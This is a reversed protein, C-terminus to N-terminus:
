KELKFPVVKKIESLYGSGMLISDKKNTATNNGNYDISLCTDNDLHMGKASQASDLGEPYSFDKECLLITNNKLFSYIMRFQGVEGFETFIIKKIEGKDYYATGENGEAGDDVISFSYSNSDIKSFGNTAPTIARSSDIIQKAKPTDEVRYNNKISTDALTTSSKTNNGCSFALVSIVIACFSIKM